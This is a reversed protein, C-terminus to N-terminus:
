EGCAKRGMKAYFNLFLNPVAVFEVKKGKM